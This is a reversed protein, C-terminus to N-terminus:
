WRVKYNPHGTRAHWLACKDHSYPESPTSNSDAKFVHEEPQDVYYLGGKATGEFLPGQNKFAKLKCNKLLVSVGKDNINATSILGCSTKARVSTTFDYPTYPLESVSMVMALLKSVLATQWDYSELLILELCISLAHAFIPPRTLPRSHVLDVTALLIWAIKCRLLYLAFSKANLVM